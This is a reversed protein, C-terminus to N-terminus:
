EEKHSTAIIFSEKMKMPHVSFHEKLKSVAVAKGM